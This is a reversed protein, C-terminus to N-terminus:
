GLLRTCGIVNYAKVWRTRNSCARNIKVETLQGIKTPQGPFYLLRYREDDTQRDTWGDTQLWEINTASLPDLATVHQTTAPVHRHSLRFRTRDSNIM